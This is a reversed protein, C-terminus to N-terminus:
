AYQARERREVALATAEASTAEYVNWTKNVTAGGGQGLQDIAAVPRPARVVPISTNVDLSRAAPIAVLAATADTVAGVKSYLGRELGAGIMQGVERDFVRSPSHIGLQRKISSVMSKAIANMQKTIAAQQSQLGKVLGKAANVGAGYLDNAASTAFSSSAKSLQGQLSAVQKVKSAGGALLNKAQPLADVGAAIFQQYTASDLGMKRLQQMVSTFQKTQAVRKTLASILSTPTRYDTADFKTLNSLVNKKYDDRVKVAATLKKNAATIKSAISKRRDALRALQSTGSSIARLLGDRQAARIKKSDFASLVANTMSRAASSVGSSGSKIGNALGQAVYGGLQAMVRSPSHIGLFNKVTSIAGQAISKMKETVQGAAGSIGNVLGSIINKGVSVLWTAAGALASNLKGQITGVSTIVKSIGSTVGSVIGNWITPIINKIANWAATWLSRVVNIGATIVSRVINIAGVVIAKIANWVGQFINKIGAWVQSWNGSIVGTVVQIVGQVIQMAAQIIPVIANFVTTIVPLLAQIIPILLGAIQSILPSIATILQAFVPALTGIITAVLPAIAAILQSFVPLLVPVLQDILLSLTNVVQLIPPVLLNFANLLAGAIMAIVPTLVPILNAIVGLLSQVIPLATVVAASLATGLQGALQAIIPGLQGFAEQVSYGIAQLLPLIENFAGGLAARLEPTTAVLGAIAAVVIGIPGALAGIPGALGGLLPIKAILPALGGAGLAVFAAGLPAIVQGMGAFVSTGGQILSVLKDIAPNVFSGVATGVTKAGAEIPGLATTLAQFAPALKPFVGGLFGAGIRGLSAGVNALAGTFTDGSSLAAGGLGAEMANAFTAFDIKGESALKSTEAATKGIEKAVFQLVPVGADQLQAIVDGQLKGSAAVKNFISGMSSMDTGAITASDAVLGLVRQLQEGPKIGAAVAGAAVGAAADLGFATGRVAGLANDMIKSIDSASNGLGKLKAQATDIATLRAFGKVLSAGIAAAGAAVTATAAGRISSGIAGTIGSGLQKGVSAGVSQGGIQQEIQKGAGRSM